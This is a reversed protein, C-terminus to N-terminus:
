LPGKFSSIGGHHGVLVKKKFSKKRLKCDENAMTPILYWGISTCMIAVSRGFLALFILIVIVVMPLYYKPRRLEQLNNIMGKLLSREHARTSPGVDSRSRELPPHDHVPQDLPGSRMVLKAQKNKKNKKIQTQDAKAKVVIPKCNNDKSYDFQVFSIKEPSIESYIKQRKEEIEALFASFKDLGRTSYPNKTHSRSSRSSKRPSSDASRIAREDNYEDDDERPFSNSGCIKLSLSSVM